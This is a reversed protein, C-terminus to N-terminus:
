EPDKSLEAEIEALTVVFTETNEFCFVSAEPNKKHPKIDCIVSNKHCSCKDALPKGCFECFKKQEKSNRHLILRAIRPDTVIKCTKENEM